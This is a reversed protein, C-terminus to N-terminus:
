KRLRGHKLLEDALSHLQQSMVELYDKPWRQSIEYVKSGLTEIAEDLTWPPPEGLDPKPILRLVSATTLEKGHGNTEEIHRVLIEESIGAIQSWRSAQLRSVGIDDLTLPLTDDHYAKKPRGEEPQRRRMKDLLEGARREARIKIEAAANQAELGEGRQKIYKRLAEAKDRIDKVEHISRAEALMRRADFSLLTIERPEAILSEVATGDADSLLTM